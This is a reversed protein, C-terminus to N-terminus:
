DRSIGGLRDGALCDTGANYLIFDPKFLEIQNPIAGKLKDMYNEDSDYQRVEIDVKIAKRARHDNPYIKHNYADVICVSDDGLFDTEHGNGQHADLDIIMAKKIKNPFARQLNKICLTIDAFVCFGGGKDGSAHHYGGSLNIAWGRDVALMGGDLKILYHFVIGKSIFLNGISGQTALLMPELLRWRLIPAPIKTLMAIEVISALRTSECLTGLYEESHM